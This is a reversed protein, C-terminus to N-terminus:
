NFKRMRSKGFLRDVSMARVTAEIEPDHKLAYKFEDISTVNPANVTINIDGNYSYEGFGKTFSSIASLKELGINEAFYKMPDNAMDYLNATAISNMIRDGQGMVRVIAGDRQRIYSEIDGYENLWALQDEDIYKTGSSYGKLQKKKVWGLPKKGDEDQSIHYPREAGSKINTVYVKEGLKQKGSAGGGDSQATYNGNDFTVKEGKTIKSDGASSTKSKTTTTTTTKKNSSSSTKKKNPTAEESNYANQAALGKVDTGAVKNLQEIMSQLNTNITNLTSNVTTLESTIGDGYMTLVSKEGDAGNWISQIEESLTYGVADAQEELTTNISTANVNADHIAQEILADVNDLRTNLMEEYEEYMSALLEEQDQIYRDFEAEEINEQSEELQVKLQQLRAKNEESDDGQYTALQKQISAQEKTLNKMKKQYEYLEKQSQLEKEKMDILEQIAELEKNIGEEVLDRIADKESEANLIAERQLDLLEEKREILDQNNPDKAIEAEINKIEEALLKSQEMYTNYNQGRLGLTAMGEDTLKGDNGVLKEDSMLEILFDAEDTVNSIKDQLLDFQEWELERISKEFELVATNAQEIELTVENISNVMENWETSNKKIIGSDVASELEKYLADREKKLYGIRNQEGKIMGSYYKSSIPQGKAEAQNMYEGIMDQRWDVRDTVNDYANQIIDFREAMLERQEDQKEKVQDLSELYKDYYNKYQSIKEQTKESYSGIDITGNQVKKQISSSLGTQKAVSKAQALYEKAAKQSATIEKGIANIAKTSASLKKSLSTARDIANIANESIRALREFNIEIWDFLKDLSELAKDVSKSSGSGGGNNNNGLRYATGDLLARGRSKTYGKSLLDETQKHNFVVSGAPIHAFEAGNDGVTFWRNGSVVLERGLEGTLAVQDQATKWDDKLWSSNKLSGMALARTHYKPIPHEFSSTGLIHATGLYQGAGGGQRTKYTVYATRDEPDEQKDLIYDVNTEKPVPQAQGGMLYEVFTQRPTPNEQESIRYAITGEKNLEIKEGTEVLEYTITGDEHKIAKVQKQVNDLSATFEITSGASLEKLEEEVKKKSLSTGIEVELHKPALLETQSASLESIKKGAEVANDIANEGIFTAGVKLNLDDERVGAIVEEAYTQLEDPTMTGIHRGNEDTIIPTFNMAINGSENSYTSSHVTAYDGESLGWGAKNMKEADVVPRVKLDVNGGQSYTELQENIEEVNVEPEVAVFTGGSGGHENNFSGGKGGHEKKSGNGSNNKDSSEFTVQAIIEQAEASEIFTDWATQIEETTSEGNITPNADSFALLLDKQIDQLNQIETQIEIKRDEDTTNKLETKLKEISDENAKYEVPIVFGKSSFGVGEEAKSIYQQNGAIVQANNEVSNDGGEILALYKDIESQISALDAEFSIKIIKDETIKDINDEFDDIESQDIIDKLRTKLESEGLTDYITKIKSLNSQYDVLADGSFLVDDFVYGYTELGRLATEVNEVSTNFAEAAEYTTEFQTTIDLLGKSDTKVDFLGKSKFDNVINEMSKTEDEGYWRDLLTDMEEIAQEYADAIYKGGEEALEKVRAPNIFKAFMEVDDTGTKGEKLLEEVEKKAKAIDSWDKDQDASELATSVDSVSATYDQVSDAADEANKAMEAFYDNLTFANLGADELSYGMERLAVTAYEGQKTAELLEEKIFNKGPSGDFFNEINQLNEQIPTLDINRYGDLIKTLERYADLEDQSLGDKLLGEEDLFSDRLSSVSELKRQLSKEYRDIETDINDFSDKQTIDDIDDELLENRERKLERLTELENRSATILDTEKYQTHSVMGTKDYTTHSQTLDQHTSVKLADMADSVAAKSAIEVSEKQLDIKRELEKNQLQLQKLEEIESQTIDGSDRLENLEELRSKNNEIESTLSSLESAVDKYASQSEQAAESAKDFATAHKYAAVASAALMATGVGIMAGIPTTIFGAFKTWAKKMSNGLGDMAYKFRTTSGTAKDQSASLANTSAIQMTEEVTTELTEGQLGQMAFIATLQDKTLQRQAVAAKVAELSYGQMSKGLAVCQM